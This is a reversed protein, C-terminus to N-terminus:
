IYCVRKKQRKKRGGGIAALIAEADEEESNLMADDDDDDDELEDELEPEVGVDQDIGANRTSRRRIRKSSSERVPHQEAATAGHLTGRGSNVLSKVEDEENDENDEPNSFPEEVDDVDEDSFLDSNKQNSLFTPGLTPNTRVAM